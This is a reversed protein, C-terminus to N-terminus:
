STQERKSSVIEKKRATMGLDLIKDKHLKMMERPVSILYVIIIRARSAIFRRLKMKNDSVSGAFM